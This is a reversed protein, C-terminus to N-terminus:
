FALTRIEKIEQIDLKATPGRIAQKMELVIGKMKDFGEDSLLLYDLEVFTEELAKSYNKCKYEENNM